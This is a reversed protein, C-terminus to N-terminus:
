RMNELFTKLEKLEDSDFDWYKMKAGLGVSCAIKPMSALFVQTKTKSHNKPSCAPLSAAMDIFDDVHGMVPHGNVTSLCLDELMGNKSNGPLIYIGINPNGNKFTYNTDPPSFGLHIMLNKIANFAGDVNDDADRVVGIIEVEDFGRTSMLAPIRDEYNTKGGADHIEVGEIGLYDLLVEFFVCEDKGEVILVKHCHIKKLRPKEKEMCKLLTM